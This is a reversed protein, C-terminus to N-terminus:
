KVSCIYGLRYLDFYFLSPNKSLINRKLFQESINFIFKIFPVLRYKKIKKYHALLPNLQEIYVKDVLFRKRSVVSQLSKEFFINNSELGCHFIANDIHHIAIKRSFLQYAFYIDMGYFKEKETYNLELFLKKQILMNGSFVYQYPKKSRFEASKEEREKGYKYRLIKSSEPQKKEYKYGGFIITNTENVSSIYNKIFNETEPIVDADLFLVWNFKAKEALIQRTRTRGLNTENKFYFCHALENIKQNELQFDFNSHDDLCIIEFVISSVICQQHINQVLQLISYNYTPILISLM